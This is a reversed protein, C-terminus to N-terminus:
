ADHHGFVGEAVLSEAREKQLGREPAVYEQDLRCADNGHENRDRGLGYAVKGIGIEVGTDPEALLLSLCHSINGTRLGSGLRLRYNQTPQLADRQQAFAPNSADPAQDNQAKEQHRDECREDRREIRVQRDLWEGQGAFRQRVTRAREPEAGIVLAPVDKRADDETALADQEVGRQCRQAGYTTPMM